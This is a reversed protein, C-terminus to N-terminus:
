ICLTHWYSGAVEACSIESIRALWPNIHGCCLGLLLFYCLPGAEPESCLPPWAHWERHHNSLQRAENFYFTMQCVLIFCLGHILCYINNRYGPTMIYRPVSSTIKFIVTWFSPSKAWTTRKCNMGECDSAKSWQWRYCTTKYANWLAIHVYM